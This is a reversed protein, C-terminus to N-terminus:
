ARNYRSVTGHLSRLCKRKDEASMAHWADMAASVVDVGNVGYALADALVRRYDEARMRAPVTPAKSAAPMAAAYWLFRGM